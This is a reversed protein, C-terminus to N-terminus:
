LYSSTTPRYHTHKRLFDRILVYYRSNRNLKLRYALRSAFRYLSSVDVRSDTTMYSKRNRELYVSLLREGVLSCYRKHYKSWDVNGISDRLKFLVGFLFECYENFSQPNTYFLQSSSFHITQTSKDSDLTCLGQYSEYYDPFNQQLIKEITANPPYESSLTGDGRELVIWGRPNKKFFKKIGRESVNLMKNYHCFGIIDNDQFKINKWIWYLGTLEGWYPNDKSINEGLDDRFNVGGGVNNNIVSRCATGVQITVANKINKSVWSTDGGFSSVFLRINM